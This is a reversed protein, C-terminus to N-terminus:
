EEKLVRSLRARLLVLQNAANPCRQELTEQLGPTKLEVLLQRTEQLMEKFTRNELQVRLYEGYLSQYQEELEPAEVVIGPSENRRETKEM